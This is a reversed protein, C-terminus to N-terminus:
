NQNESPKAAVTFRTTQRGDTTEVQEGWSSVHRTWKLFKGYMAQYIVMPKETAEDIVIDYVLYQKEPARYHYYCHSIQVKKHAEQLLEALHVEDSHNTITAM